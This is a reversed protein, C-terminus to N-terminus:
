RAEVWGSGMYNLCNLMSTENDFRYVLHGQENEYSRVSENNLARWLEVSLDGVHCNLQLHYFERDESPIIKYTLKRETKRPSSVM